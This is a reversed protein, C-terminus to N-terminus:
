LKKVEFRIVYGGSANFTLKTNHDIRFDAFNSNLSVSSLVTAGNVTCTLSKFDIVIKKGASVSQNLLFHKGQNSTVQFTSIGEAPTFEIAAPLNAFGTDDYESLSVSTGTGTITKEASYCYPDSLTIEITGTPHLTTDDFTLSTVTGTYRYGDDAFSVETNKVSLLKKLKGTKDSLDSLSSAQLFFNVTLKKSEIRSSLYKAGDSALDTVTVARTFGGRGSVSLTIFGDVSSDLCHGGYSFAVQSKM